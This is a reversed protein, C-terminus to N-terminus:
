LLRNPCGDEETEDTGTIEVVSAHNAVNLSLLKQTERFHVATKEDKDQGLEEITVNTITLL